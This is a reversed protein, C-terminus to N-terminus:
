STGSKRQPSHDGYLAKYAGYSRLVRRVYNRTEYFPIEEVFEDLDLHGLKVMWRAVNHPGANYSALALHVNGGFEDFVKKFYAIGLEINVRPTYLMGTQYGSIGVERATSKGTSPILQMLGIAGAPSVAKEQFRSEERIISYVVFEDVGYKASLRKVTEGFGQPYSLKGAHPIEIEQVVRISNYSDNVKSYLQSVYILERSEKAMEEMKKIELAADELIGLKILIEAKLQNVKNINAKISSEASNLSPVIGTKRQALYSYYSPIVIRSLSEYVATAEKTKGQKELTKAKWYTARSSNFTSSSSTFSSFTVLAQTYKRQRYHIWGLNWAGDETFESEPYKRLLLDYLEIAKESNLNIQYLRAANYLAESALKSEPYLSYIRYYTKSAEEDQGKKTFIKAMWYLSEPSQIQRFMKMAEDLSGLNFKSVAIRTKIEGTKTVREFNRIASEWRSLEFLREARKLYDSEKPKFLLGRTQSIQVAKHFAADGFESEPYEVWLEKYINLADQYKRQRELSEAVNYLYTSKTWLDSEEEYLSRFVKESKELDGMDSYAEALRILTRKRLTSTPYDTLIKYFDTTAGKLNGLIREGFARYYIVYDAILSLDKELGNLLRVGEGYRGLKIYCYGKRYKEEPTEQISKNVLSECDIETNAFSNSTFLSTLILLSAILTRSVLALNKCFKTKMQELYIM